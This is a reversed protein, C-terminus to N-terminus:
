SWDRMKGLSFVFIQRHADVLGKLRLIITQKLNPIFEVGDISDFGHAKFDTNANKRLHAESM